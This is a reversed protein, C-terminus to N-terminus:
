LRRQVVKVEYHSSDNVGTGREGGDRGLEMFFFFFLKGVTM